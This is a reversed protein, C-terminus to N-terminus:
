NKLRDGRLSSDDLSGGQSTTRPTFCGTEGSGTSSAEFVPKKRRSLACSKGRKQMRARLDPENDAPKGGWPTGSRSAPREIRTDSSLCSELHTVSEVTLLGVIGLPRGLGNLWM